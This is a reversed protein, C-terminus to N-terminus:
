AMAARAAPLRLRMGLRRELSLLDNETDLDVAFHDNDTEFVRVLEPKGAIFQRCGFDREGALIHERAAWDFIIPNGRRGRVRPVVVSGGDRKKYAAILSILDQSNILPQDAPCVLVADFKGSLQALGAHVSSMRGARYNENRVITVPFDQVLQGVLEAQHGLVVAVEDVGAGSLAFLARKILPVGQLEIAPKAIGGMRKGEGAALLVAAISM